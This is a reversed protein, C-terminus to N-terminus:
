GVNYKVLYHIIIGNKNIPEAWEVKVHFSGQEAVTLSRVPEPVAVSLDVTYCM